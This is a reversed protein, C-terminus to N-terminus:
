EYGDVPDYVDIEGGEPSWWDPQDEVTDVRM